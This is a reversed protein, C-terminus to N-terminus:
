RAGIKKLFETPDSGRPPAWPAFTSDGRRIFPGPKIERYACFDGITTILHYKGPEVSFLDNAVLIIDSEVTGDDDFAYAALSGIMPMITEKKTQHYHPPIYSDRWEVIIMDHLADGPSAHLCIRANCKLSSAEDILENVLDFPVYLSAEAPPAFFALSKSKENWVRNFASLKV